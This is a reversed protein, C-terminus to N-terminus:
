EGRDCQACQPECGVCHCPASCAPCASTAEYSCCVKCASCLTTAIRRQRLAAAMIESRRKLLERTIRLARRVRAKGVFTNVFMRLGNGDIRGNVCAKAAKQLVRLQQRDRRMMQILTWFFVRGRCADHGPERGGM